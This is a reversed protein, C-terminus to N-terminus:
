AHWEYKPMSFDPLYERLIVHGPTVKILTMSGLIKDQMQKKEKKSLNQGSTMVDVGKRAAGDMNWKRAKARFLRPSTKITILEAKGFFQLSRQKKNHVMPQEYIAACVNPNRKINAIKTTGSGFIYLTLGEHFFELPTARPINDHATALVLSTRHITGCRYKGTRKDPVGCTSQLFDIIEKKIQTKSKKQMGSM